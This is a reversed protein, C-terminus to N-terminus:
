VLPRSNQTNRLSALALGGIITSFGLATPQGWQGQPVVLLVNSLILWPLVDNQKLKNYSISAVQFVFRLRIGIVILGMLIGMEGIIRGWEGEAVMFVVKGALLQSGVNTGMGLGLGFIPISTSSTLAGLLGGLYRDVLTGELGGEVRNAVTVRSNLVETATQFFETQSLVGLAIVVGLAAPVIKGAFQPKRILGGVAVLICVAVGFLLARSISFPIAAILGFTAGLLVLKFLTKEGKLNMWFYLLFPTTLWYFLVLGNTFAFTGPPRFYGDAGEFGAGAEDGGIGRNVWASQPSYFQLGMLVTMPLAIWLVAKGIKIVDEKYFVNGIVFMLPFHIVLIRAGFIAVFLNGHGMAMTALFSLVTVGMMVRVFSSDPFLNKSRAQLLIYIAVPDRIILLPTALGPLVWKRLAGEFILLLFYLWIAQKIRKLPNVQAKQFPSPNSSVTTTKISSIQQL